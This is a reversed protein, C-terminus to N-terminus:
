HTLISTFFFQVGGNLQCRWGNSNGAFPAAQLGGNRWISPTTMLVKRAIATERWNPCQSLGDESLPKVTFGQGSHSSTVIWRGDWLEGPDCPKDSIASQERYLVLQDSSVPRGVCGHLTAANGALLGQWFRSLARLRPRYRASSIWNLCHALLRLQTEEPAQAFSKLDLVVEGSERPTACHQALAATSRELAHRAVAMRDATDAIKEADIGLPKLNELLKRAKVRDYKLDRNSPDEIWDQDLETLFVRLDLRSIQLLPRLWLTDHTFAIEAMGSLGDVGSGRALRLLFTEAQDDRTHGLAVAALRNDRAWQGIKQKRASRAADQLNGQGNWSTWRLVDHDLDLRACLTAVFEAESQAAERLGHNLTVVKIKRNTEEAWEALLLLLAVSDGGGSVAVGLPGKPCRALAQHVQEKLFEATFGTLLM